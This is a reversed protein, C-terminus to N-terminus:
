EGLKNSITADEEEDVEESDREKGKELYCRILISIHRNLVIKMKIFKGNEDDDVMENVEKEPKDTGILKVYSICECCNDSVLFFHISDICNSPFACVVARKELDM